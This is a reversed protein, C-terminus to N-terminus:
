SHMQLWSHFVKGPFARNLTKEHGLLELLTMDAFTDDYSITLDETQTLGILMCVHDVPSTLPDLRVPWLNAVTCKEQNDKTDWIRLNAENDWLHVQATM